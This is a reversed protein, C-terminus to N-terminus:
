GDDRAEGADVEDRGAAVRAIGIRTRMEDETIRGALYGGIARATTWAAWAYARLSIKV